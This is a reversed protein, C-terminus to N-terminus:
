KRGKTRIIRTMNRFKRKMRRVIVIRYQLSYRVNLLLFDELNTSKTDYYIWKHKEHKQRTLCYQTTKGWSYSGTCNRPKHYVNQYPISLDKTNMNGYWLVHHRWWIFVNKANSAMQAPFEGTGPSNVACLGTVRPKSTKKSRRWASYVSTLSTIQSAMVGLIVDNHHLAVAERLALWHLVSPCEDVHLLPYNVVWKSCQWQDDFWINHRM